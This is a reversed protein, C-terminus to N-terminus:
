LTCLICPVYSVSCPPACLVAYLAHPTMCWNLTSPCSLVPCSLLCHLAASVRAVTYRTRYLVCCWECCETCNVSKGADSQGADNDTVIDSALNRLKTLHGLQGRRSYFDSVSQCPVAIVAPLPPCCLGPGCCVSYPLACLVM